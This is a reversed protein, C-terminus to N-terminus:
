LWKKWKFILATFGMLIFSLFLVIFFASDKEALPLKVNMGYLSALITPISVVITYATLIKIVENIKNSFLTEYGERLEVINTISSKAVEELQKIELILDDVLSRDFSFLELYRKELIEVLVMKTSVLTSMFDELIIGSRILQQIEKKEIDKIEFAVKKVEKNILIITYKLAECIHSLIQFFLKTKQTTFILHKGKELFDEFFPFKAQSLFLFFEYGIVILLPLTFIRGNEKTPAKL